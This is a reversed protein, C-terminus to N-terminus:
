LEKLYKSLNDWCSQTIYANIIIGEKHTTAKVKTQPEDCESTVIMDLNDNLFNEMQETTLEFLFNLKRNSLTVSNKIKRAM